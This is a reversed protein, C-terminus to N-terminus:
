YISYRYRKRSIRKSDFSVSSWSGDFYLEARAGAIIGIDERKIGVAKCINSLTIKFHERSVVKRMIGERVKKEMIPLFLYWATNLTWRPGTMGYDREGALWDRLVEELGKKGSSVDHYKATKFDLKDGFMWGPTRPFTKIGSAVKGVAKYITKVFPHTDIRSKDYGHPDRRPTILNCHYYM